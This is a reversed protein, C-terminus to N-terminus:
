WYYSTHDDFKNTIRRNLISVSTPLGLEIIKGTSSGDAINLRPYLQIVANDPIEEVTLAEETGIMGVIDLFLTLYSFIWLRMLYLKLPM